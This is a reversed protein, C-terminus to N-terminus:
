FRFRLGVTTMRGTVPGINFLEYAYNNTLNDISVFGSLFPTIQQWVGANVKLFGPYAVIYDRSTAQCPGTGGFCRFLALFDTQRFSGVYTVGATVTSGDRPTATLLAGATHKPTALSQDGVRLEGAYGPALQDIRARAYGYQVTFQLPGLFGSGEIEVGTNRVRGVNQWQNTLVPESQVQVFQILNEAIQDYYTMSLSGRSGLVADLGADWGKQREPGLEPNALTVSTATIAPLKLGAAPARIARGWSGRVKLTATGVPHVYSLGLRPSLPTGLSDGFDTNEEARLGGTLFLADRVGLQGQMFYGTNNTATQSVTVPQDPATVITGTTALAGSTSWQTIPLSWHDVGATLTAAAGSALLGHVSSNFGVSTKRWDANDVTLFTDAATTLRRRSQALERGFRDIGVTVTNRWWSMPTVTLRAGVTQNTIRSPQYLPKSFFVFGTQALEPNVVSAGNQVWYRASVDLNLIGRVFGMGGHVSPNSQKSQEGDPLYDALHSYGAGLSYSVDATGGRVSATYAQRLVGGYGEYPTQVVGVASQAEVQPRALGPAGRKTFIQIVGSIAESGYIAAAQPGRIVEIRSITNPDFAATGISATEIGDVLVKMQGSGPALTSAGRVSFATLYPYQPINWGLGGPVVQRFVEQVTQPRQLAIDKEDVVSVPTPLAKVETPVITGTVVVQDLEQPSKALTFDAVVQGGARITVSASSPRYGIYRARLTYSGPKLRSVRYRGGADTMVHQGTGEIMVTAGVIPAGSASDSVQGAVGGSDVQAAALRVRPVLALGGATTLSVDVPLGSLIEALAAAVTIGQVRFPVRRELPVVRPSYSIDLDAQTSLIKLAEGITVDHLDLTVKTQLIPATSAESAREPMWAAVLFRPGDLAVSQQSVACPAAGLVMASSLLPSWVLLCRPM